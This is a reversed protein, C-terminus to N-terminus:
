LYGLVGALFGVAATLLVLGVGLPWGPARRPAVPPDIAIVRETDVHSFLNLVPAASAVDQRMPPAVPVAIRTAAEADADTEDGVSRLPLSPRSPFIVGSVQTAAMTSVKEDGFTPLTRAQPQTGLALRRGPLEPDVRPLTARAYEPVSGAFGAVDAAQTLLLAQRAMQLCRSMTLSEDRLEGLELKTGLIGPRQPSGVVEVVTGTGRFVVRGDVLCVVFEIRTGNAHARPLGVRMYRDDVSRCFGHIFDPVNSYRTVIRVPLASSAQNWPAASSIHKTM